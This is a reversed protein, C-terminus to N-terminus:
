GKNLPDISALPRGAVGVCSKWRWWRGGQLWKRAVVSGARGPAMVFYRMSTWPRTITTNNDVARRTEAVVLMPSVSLAAGDLTDEVHYTFV